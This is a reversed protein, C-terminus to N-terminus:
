WQHSWVREIYSNRRQSLFQNGADPSNCPRNVCLYTQGLISVEIVLVMLSPEGDLRHARPGLDAVQNWGKGAWHGLAIIPGKKIVM